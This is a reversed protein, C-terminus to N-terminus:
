RKYLIKMLEIDVSIKHLTENNHIYKKIYEEANKELLIFNLLSMRNIFDTINNKPYQYMENIKHVKRKYKYPKKDLTLSCYYSEKIYRDQIIELCNFGDYSTVGNEMFDIISLCFGVTKNFVFSKNDVLLALFISRMEREEFFLKGKKFSVLNVYEYLHSHIFIDKIYQERISDDYKSTYNSLLQFFAIAKYHIFNQNHFFGQMPLYFMTLFSNILCYFSENLDLNLANLEDFVIEKIEATSLIEHNANKFNLYYSIILSDDDISINEKFIWNKSGFENINVRPNLYITLYGNILEIININQMQVM